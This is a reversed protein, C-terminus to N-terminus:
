NKYDMLTPIVEEYYQLTKKKLNKFYHKRIFATEKQM